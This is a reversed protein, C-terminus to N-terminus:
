YKIFVSQIEQVYRPESYHTSRLRYLYTWLGWEGVGWTLRNFHDKTFLVLLVQNILDDVQQAPTSTTTATGMANEMVSTQVDLDEFTQEFKDMVQTHLFTLSRCSLTYEPSRRVFKFNNITQLFDSIQVLILWKWIRVRQIDPDTYQSALNVQWICLQFFTEPSIYIYM